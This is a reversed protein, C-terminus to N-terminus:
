SLRQQRKLFISSYVCLMIYKLMRLLVESLQPEIKYKRYIMDFSLFRLAKIGVVCCLPKKGSSIYRSFVKQVNESFSTKDHSLRLVSHCRFYRSDVPVVFRRNEGHEEPVPFPQKTSRASYEPRNQVAMGSACYQSEEKISVAIRSM